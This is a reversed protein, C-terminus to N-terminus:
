ILVGLMRCVMKDAEVIAIPDKWLMGLYDDKYTRHGDDKVSFTAITQKAGDYTVSLYWAKGSGYVGRDGYKLTFLMKTDKDFYSYFNENVKNLVQM